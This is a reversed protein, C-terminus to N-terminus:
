LANKLLNQQVKQSINPISKKDHAKKLSLECGVFQSSKFILMIFQNIITTRKLKLECDHIKELSMEDSARLYNRQNWSVFVNSLVWSRFLGTRYELEIKPM